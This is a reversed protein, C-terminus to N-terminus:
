QITATLERVQVTRAIAVTVEGDKTERWGALEVRAEIAVALGQCAEAIELLNAIKGDVREAADDRDAPDVKGVVAPARLLPDRHRAVQVIAREVRAKIAVAPRRSGETSIPAGRRGDGDVRVARNENAAESRAEPLLVVTPGVVAGSGIEHEGAVVVIPTDVRRKAVAPHRDDFGDTGVIDRERHGDVGGAAHEQGTGRAKSPGRGVVKRNGTEATGADEIRVEAGFPVM